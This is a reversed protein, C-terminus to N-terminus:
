DLIEISEIDGEPLYEIEGSGFQLAKFDLSIIAPKYNTVIIEQHQGYNSLSGDRNYYRNGCSGITIKMMCFDKFASKKM